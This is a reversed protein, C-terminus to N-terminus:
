GLMRKGQPDHFSTLGLFAAVEQGEVIVSYRGRELSQKDSQGEDLSVFCLGVAAGVTNGYAAFTM